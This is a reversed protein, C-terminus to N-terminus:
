CRPLRMGYRQYTDMNGIRTFLDNHFEETFEIPEELKLVGELAIADPDVDWIWVCLCAREAESSLETDINEVFSGESFLQSITEVQAGHM